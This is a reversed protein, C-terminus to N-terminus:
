SARAAVALTNGWPDAIELGGDTDRWAIGARDLRARLGPALQPDASTVTFRRLGATPGDPVPRGRSRWTNLGLHHHYGGAAVFLAGPMEAMVAFGVADAWFRRAADLDGVKLHLHGVATGAPLDVPGDAAEAALDAVDLPWTGMALTGQARPWRDRPRDSYVELGNGDPDDLYLAESVGHDSAGTPVRHRALSRLVRALAPRDPVRLAVHFLGPAREPLPRARREEVLELIVRDPGGLGARGPATAHVTLGLVGAYFAASRDLDVVTLEVSAIALDDPLM